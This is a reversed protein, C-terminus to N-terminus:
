LKEFPDAHEVDDSDQRYRVKLLREVADIDPTQSRLKLNWTRATSFTFIATSMKMEEGYLIEEPFEIADASEDDHIAKSMYEEMAPVDRGGTLMRARYNVVTNMLVLLIWWDKRGDARHTAVWEQFRPRSRLRELTLAIPRVSKSYRNLVAVTARELSYGPGPTERWSLEPSTPMVYESADSPLMSINRRTNYTDPDHFQGYLESYPRAIFVKSPLGDRFANDIARFLDKDSLCSCQTLVALAINCVDQQMEEVARPTSKSANPLIVRMGSNHNGPIAEIKARPVARLEVEIAASTPLLCLDFNSLDALAIQLIAVFQEVQPVTDYANKCDIRWQIGLASWVYSRTPGTDCLPVGFLDRQVAERVKASSFNEIHSLDLPPTLIDNRLDEPMAADALPTNMLTVVSEGNLAKSTARAIYFHYITAQLKEHEEWNDPDDLYQYHMSLILPIMESFSIWEGAGYNCLAIEHLAAVFLPKLNDDDARHAIFAAGFAYYKAAWCLGLRRYASSLLLMALLTARLTDGTFWKVKARHLESIGSLIKEQDMLVFARDRCKEAVLFGSSRKELVEDARAVLRSFDPHENLLPTLKTLGDVFSEIEFLPARDAVSLLRFWFNIQSDLNSTPTTGQLFPLSALSSRTYLLDAQRNPNEKSAEIETDVFGTIAVSFRHLAENDFEFERHIVASSAYSLLLATDRIESTKKWRAWDALYEEVMARRPRLDHLGRLTAVCIEYKARRMLAENQGPGLFQEILQIWRRLDPKYEDRFTAARLGYKVSVFDAFTSPTRDQDLWRGRAAAYASKPAVRPEPFMDNSIHLYEEAIWFIAPDTFQEAIAQADLIELRCKHTEACDRQLELRAAIPINQNSFFYIIHPSERKCITELDGRIKGKVRSKDTISCAFVLPKSEGRGRFLSSRVEKKRIFTTFTEFDRGEDGGASVPGTAPLINPTITERALHRCIHEFEHHSNTASLQDLQFLLQGILARRKPTSKPQKPRPSDTAPM